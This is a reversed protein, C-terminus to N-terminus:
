ARLVHPIRDPLDEAILGPGFIRAADAHVQAALAAADHPALGRALLGAVIGSLVDGAGATALWPVSDEYTACHVSVRTGGGQGMPSAVVTAPGKLLVTCGARLAAARAADVASFAPGEGAPEALRDALDPFLRRFEGGHPTLVCGEHLMDLLAGPDHRFASLADADLVAARRAGLAAETLARTREGAADKMGLGMGLALANIRPDELAERLGDPGDIRALMIADLRGANELVAAPPAGLTVLGAGIRLAARAALRAAGGKGVGGSLVLAHGYDYKHGGTKALRQGPPQPAFAGQALSRAPNVRLPAEPRPADKPLGIDVVRLGGCHEPGEGLHHGLKPGHFSATAAARIALGGLARGSDACLGSPIDVALIFLSACANLAAAVAAADAGLPRTLGTGFLADVVMSPDFPDGGEAARRADREGGTLHAEAAARAVLPPFEALPRVAGGGDLWRRRMGAADPAAPAATMEFVVVARRAGLGESLLRAMAYGDGGNNGPGCLVAVDGAASLGRAAGAAAREMLAAGSVRGSAIEAGEIARMRAATLLEM